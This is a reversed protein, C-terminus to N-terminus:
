FCDIGGCWRHSHRHDRPDPAARSSNGAYGRGMLLVAIAVMCFWAWRRLRLIGVGTIIGWVAILAILIAGILFGIVAVPHNPDTIRVLVVGLASFLAFLCVCASVVILVTAAATVGGSRKM